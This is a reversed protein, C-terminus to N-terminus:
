CFVIRLYVSFFRVKAAQQREDTSFRHMIQKLEIKAALQVDEEQAQVDDATIAGGATGFTDRLVKNIVRVVV